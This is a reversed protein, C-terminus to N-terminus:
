SHHTQRPIMRKKMFFINPDRLWYNVYRNELISPRIDRILHKWHCINDIILAKTCRIDYPNDERLESGRYQIRYKRTKKEWLLYIEFINLSLINHEIDQDAQTYKQQTNYTPLWINIKKESYALNRGYLKFNLNRYQTINRVSNGMPVVMIGDGATFFHPVDQFPHLNFHPLVGQEISKQSAQCIKILVHICIWSGYTRWQVNICNM